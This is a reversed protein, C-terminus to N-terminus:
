ARRAHMRNLEPQVLRALEKAVHSGITGIFTGGHLHVHLHQEGGGGGGVRQMATAVATALAERGGASKLPLIAEGGTGPEGFVDRGIHIQRTIIGGVAHGTNHKGLGGGRSIPNSTYPAGGIGVVDAILGPISELEAKFAAVFAQGAVSGAHKAITEVWASLDSGFKSHRLGHIIDDAWKLGTKTFHQRQFWDVFPQLAGAVQIKTVFAHFGMRVRKTKTYGFLYGSFSDWWSQVSQQMTSGGQGFAIEIALRFPKKLVRAVGYIFKSLLKVGKTALNRFAEDLPLKAINSLYHLATAAATGLALIQPQFDKALTDVLKHFKEELDLAGLAVGQQSKEYVDQAKHLALLAKETQTAGKGYKALDENYTQQAVHLALLADKQDKMTAKNKFSQAVVYAFAAGLGGLLGTVLTLPAVLAATVAALTTFADLLAVAVFVVAGIILPLVALGAALLAVGTVVLGIPSAMQALTAAFAAVAGETQAAAGGLQEVDAAALLSLQGLQEADVAAGEV